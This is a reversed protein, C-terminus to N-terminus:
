APGVEEEPLFEDEPEDAEDAPETYFKINNLGCGLLHRNGGDATLAAFACTSNFLNSSDGGSNLNSSSNYASSFRDSESEDLDAELSSWRLGSFATTSNFLSTRNPPPEQGSSAEFEQEFNDFFDPVADEPIGPQSAADLGVPPNYPGDTFTIAGRPDPALEVSTGVTSSAGSRSAGAVMPVVAAAEQDPLVQLWQSSPLEFDVPRRKESPDPEQEAGAEVADHEESNEGEYLIREEEEAGRQVVRTRGRNKSSRLRSLDLRPVLLNRRQEGLTSTAEAEVSPEETAEERQEEPYSGEDNGECREGPPVPLGEPSSPPTACPCPDEVDDEDFSNEQQQLESLDPAFVHARSAQEETDGEDQIQTAAQEESTGLSEDELMQFPDVAEEEPLMQFVFEGDGPQDGSKQRGQPSYVEEVAGDTLDEDAKEYVCDDETLVVCDDKTEWLGGGHEQELLEQEAEDAEDNTVIFEDEEDLLFDEQESSETQQNEKGGGGGRGGGHRVVLGSLQHSNGMTQNRAGKSGGGVLDGFLSSSSVEEEDRRNFLLSDFTASTFHDLDSSKADFAAANNHNRAAGPNGIQNRVSAIHEELERERGSSSNTFRQMELLWQDQDLCEHDLWDLGLKPPAQPRPCSSRHQSNYCPQFFVVVHLKHVLPSGRRGGSSNNM